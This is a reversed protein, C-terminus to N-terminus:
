SITSTAWIAPAAYFPSIFLPFIHCVFINPTSDFFECGLVSHRTGAKRPATSQVWCCKIFALTPGLFTLWTPRGGIANGLNQRRGTRGDLIKSFKHIFIMLVSDTLQVFHAERCGQRHASIRAPGKKITSLGCNM